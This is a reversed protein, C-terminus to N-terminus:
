YECRDSNTHSLVSGPRDWRCCCGVSSRAEVACPGIATPRRRHKGVAAAEALIVYCVSHVSDSDSFAGGEKPSLILAPNERIGRSLSRSAGRHIGAVTTARMARDASRCPVP